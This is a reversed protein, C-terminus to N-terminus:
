IPIRQTWSIRSRGCGTPTPRPRIPSPTPTGTACSSTGSPAAASRGSWGQGGAAPTPFTAARTGTLWTSLGGPQTEGGYGYGPYARVGNALAFPFEFASHLTTISRVQRESLCTDGTDEGTSCRLAEAGFRSGCGQYHSVIGDAIGDLADCAKLVAQGVLAVKAANLWGGQQQALGARHGAHQLATWNIVPVRSIVGDYDAPFRQAMTLGERGGESTGMYYIRAPARGYRQRILAVALDRVKKYSAYAFNALAEDNLAFAQIEPLASAQHGSDTGLTAYGQALPTPMGPPADAAPGLGTVLTGNFGGGGYQVVKGNWAAPLNLQFNIVPATPDVPAIAGLLTCYEPSAAVFTGNTNTTAPSAAVSEASLVRAGTTPLGIAAAPIAFAKLDACPTDAATAGAPVCCLALAALVNRHGIWGSRDSTM